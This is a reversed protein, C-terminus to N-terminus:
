SNLWKKYSKKLLKSPISNVPATPIKKLVAELKELSVEQDTDATLYFPIGLKSAISKIKYISDLTSKNFSNKFLKWTQGFRVISEPTKLDINEEPDFMNVVGLPINVWIASPTWNDIILETIGGSNRNLDEMDLILGEEFEADSVVMRGPRKALGSGAMRKIDEEDADKLQETFADFDGAWTTRGEVRMAITLHTIDFGLLMMANYFDQKRGSNRVGICSLENKGSTKQFYKDVDIKGAYGLFHFKAVEKAFFKHDAMQNWLKKAQRRLDKEAFQKDYEVSRKNQGKSILNSVYDSYKKQTQTIKGRDEPSSEDIVKELEEKIIQKLLNKSIIM